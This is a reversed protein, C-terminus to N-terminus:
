EDIQGMIEMLKKARDKVQSYWNSNKMEVTAKTFNGELIAKKLKKFERLRPEGLNYAMDILVEQKKIPLTGFEKDGIFSKANNYARSYLKSFLLDAEETTIPRKGSIINKDLLGKISEDNLNFGYGITKFGRSDKYPKNRFGEFGKTLDKNYASLNDLINPM